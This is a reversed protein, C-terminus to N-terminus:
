IGVDDHTTIMESIFQWANFINFMSHLITSTLNFNSFKIRRPYIENKIIEIRWDSKKQM